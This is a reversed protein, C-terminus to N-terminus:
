AMSLALGSIRVCYVNRHKTGEKMVYFVLDFRFNKISRECIKMSPTHFISLIGTIFKAFYGGGGLSWNLNEKM